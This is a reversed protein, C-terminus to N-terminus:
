QSSVRLNLPSTPIEKTFDFPASKASEGWINIAKAEAVHNGESIGGLDYWIVYLGSEIDVKGDTIGMDTGDLYIRFQQCSPHPDCTLFPSGFALVPLLLAMFCFGIIFAITKML